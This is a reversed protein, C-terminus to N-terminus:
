KTQTSLTVAVRTGAATGQEDKLEEIVVADGARSSLLELRKRTIMMGVSKHLSDSTKKRSKSTAIGIGNDTVATQAM